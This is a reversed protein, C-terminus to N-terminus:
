YGFEIFLEYLEANFSWVVQNFFPPFVQIPMKWLLFAHKSLCMLLHKGDSIVLFICILVM